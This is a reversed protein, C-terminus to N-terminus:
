PLIVACCITTTAAAPLVPGSTTHPLGNATYPAYPDVYGAVTSPAMLTPDTTALAAPVIETQGPVVWSLVTATAAGPPKAGGAGHLPGIWAGELKFGTNRVHKPPVDAEVGCTAPAAATKNDLVPPVPSEGACTRSMNM